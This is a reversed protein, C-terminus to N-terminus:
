LALLAVSIYTRRLTHPTTNPLSPLGRAALRASALEAAEHVIENARQRNMRGGRMNPFLHADPNTPLGSRQVRDIHAVIEELLDPCSKSRESGPRQRRM